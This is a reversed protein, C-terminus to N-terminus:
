LQTANSLNADYDIKQIWRQCVAMLQILEVRRTAEDKCGIVEALEEVAVHGWTLRGAAMASDTLMKAHAENSIAYFERREYRPVNAQKNFAPDISSINLQDGFKELARQSEKAVADFLASDGHLTNSYNKM